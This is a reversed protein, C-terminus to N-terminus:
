INCEFFTSRLYNCLKYPPDLPTCLLLFVFLVWFFLQLPLVWFFLQLPLVWFLQLPPLAWFILVAPPLV